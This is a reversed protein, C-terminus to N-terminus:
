LPKAKRHLALARPNRTLNLVYDAAARREGDTLNERSYREQFVLDVYDALDPDVADAVAKPNRLDPRYGTLQLMAYLYRYGLYTSQESDARDIRRRILTNALFLLGALLLLM